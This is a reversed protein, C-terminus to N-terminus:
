EEEGHSLTGYRFYKLVAFTGILNLLIYTIAIDLFDTRGSLFGYMVLFLVTSTGIINAALLRDFLTPGVLARYLSLVLSISIIFIILNFIM